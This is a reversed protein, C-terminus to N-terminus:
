DTLLLRIWGGGADSSAQIAQMVAVNRIAEAPTVPHPARGTCAAAFAGLEDRLSEDVPFSFVEQVRGLLSVETFNSRAELNADTGYFRLDAVLPCALHSALTGTAGSQLEFLAACTDDLELAIAQRKVIAAIRAIPALLWQLTDIMHLGMPAVGASPMEARQCRWHEPPLRMIRNSSYHAEIHIVRGLRGEDLLAKIKRAGTSFRRNHGVALVRANRKCALVARRASDVNLALPKEVFVHKGAAAAREIQSAHLSHPTALVVAEVNRDELVEDFSSFAAGGHEKSLRRCEDVSLSFFGATRVTDPLLAAAKALEGGWWGTGVFALTLM